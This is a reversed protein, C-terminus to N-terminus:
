GTGAIQQVLSSRGFILWCMRRGTSYHEGLGLVFEVFALRGAVVVVVIGFAQVQRGVLELALRGVLVLARM